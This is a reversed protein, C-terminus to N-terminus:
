FLTKIVDAAMGTRVIVRSRKLILSPRRSRQKKTTQAQHEYPLENFDLKKAMIIFPRGIQNRWNHATNIVIISSM